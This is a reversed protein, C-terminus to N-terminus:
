GTDSPFWGFDKHYLTQDKIYICDPHSMWFSNDELKAVWDLEGCLICRSKFLMNILKQFVGSLKEEKFVM